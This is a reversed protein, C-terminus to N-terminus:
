KISCVGEKGEMKISYLEIVLNLSRLSIIRKETEQEQKFRM